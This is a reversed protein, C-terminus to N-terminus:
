APYDPTTMSSNSLFSYNILLLTVQFVDRLDILTGLIFSENELLNGCIPSTRFSSFQFQRWFVLCLPLIFLPFSDSFARSLLQCDKQCCPLFFCGLSVRGNTWQASAQLYFLMRYYLLLPVFSSFFPM